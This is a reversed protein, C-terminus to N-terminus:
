SAYDATPTSTTVCVSISRGRASTAAIAASGDFAVAHYRFMTDAAQPVEGGSATPDLTRNRALNM